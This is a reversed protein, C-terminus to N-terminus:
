NRYRSINLLIGMEVLNIVLSSRGYSIFPLPMGTLPTLAVMSGLNLVIQLGVLATIGGALLRGYLDQAEEACKFGRWVIVFLVCVIVLTGLFGLEEGIVAFISDTMVEPLYQYKQRSYGLGLGLIGGSGLAILVQNIHYSIGLRDVNPYLFSFLRDRRYESSFTFFVGALAFSIGTVAIQWLSVPSLFLTIIGAGVLTLTTGLDPELIILGGVLGMIGFFILFVERVSPLTSLWTALFLIVALKAFESPQFAIQEVFPVNIPLALRRKAGYIESGFGPLLVLILLIVSVVLGIKALKQWHHYNILSVISGGLLGLFAWISQRKLFFYKDGFQDHALVVSTDYVMAVGFVTLGVVLLALLLDPMKRPLVKEAPRRERKSKRTRARKFKM